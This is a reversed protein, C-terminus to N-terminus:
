PAVIGRERLAALLPILSLGLVTFYDGKVSDFLQAGRGELQYCGVSSLILKGESKLYNELFAESFDRMALHARETYRWVVKGKEALALSGILQHEKGRLFLLNRRAEALDKAKDFLRDECLLTQDCGLVLAQPSVASVNLAKAEALAGAMADNTVGQARLTSKEATEDLDPPRVGFRVGAERLIRARVNSASALILTKM